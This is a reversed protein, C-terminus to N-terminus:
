RNKKWKNRKMDFTLHRVYRILCETILILWFKLKLLILHNLKIALFSWVVNTMSSVLFNPWHFSRVKSKWLKSQVTKPCNIIVTIIMILFHHRWAFGTVPKAYLCWKNDIRKLICSQRWIRNKSSIVVWFNAAVTMYVNTYLLGPGNRLVM